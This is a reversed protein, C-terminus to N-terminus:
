RSPEGQLIKVARLYAVQELKTRPLQQASRLADRASDKKHAAHLALALQIFVGPSTSRDRIASNLGQIADEMKGDALLVSALSEHQFASLLKNDALANKLPAIARLADATNHEADLKISAIRAATDLDHPQLARMRELALLATKTSSLPWRPESQYALHFWAISQIRLSVEENPWRTGIRNLYPPLVENLEPFYDADCIGELALALIRPSNAQKAAIEAQELFDPVLLVQGAGVLCRAYWRATEADLLIMPLGLERLRQLAAHADGALYHLRALSRVAWINKADLALAKKVAHIASDRDGMADATEAALMWLSINSPQKEAATWAAQVAERPKNEARLMLTHLALLPVYEGHVALSSAIRERAAQWHGAKVDLLAIGHSAQAQSQDQKLIANWINRTRADHEINLLQFQKESIQKARKLESLASSLQTCIAGLRMLLEIHTENAAVVEVLQTAGLWGRSLGAPQPKGAEPEFAELYCRLLHIKVESPFQQVDVSALREIYVDRIYARLPEADRETQRFLDFALLLGFPTVSAQREHPDPLNALELKATARDNRALAVRALACRAFWDLPQSALRKRAEREVALLNNARLARHLTLIQMPEDQSDAEGTEIAHKRSRALEDNPNLLLIQELSDYLENENGSKAARDFREWEERISQQQRNQTQTQAFYYGGVAFSVLFLV